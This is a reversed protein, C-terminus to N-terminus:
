GLLGGLAGLDLGGTAKSMEKQAMEEAKKIGQNVAAAILDELMSVDGPDVVEPDLIIRVVEKQGSVQAKVMGGGASGEVVRDKLEKQIRAMDKQMKRAQDFMGGMGGFDKGM